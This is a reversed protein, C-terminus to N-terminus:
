TLEPSPIEIPNGARKAFRIQGLAAGARSLLEAMERLASELPQFQVASVAEGLFVAKRTTPRLCTEASDRHNFLWCLVTDGIAYVPISSKLPMDEPRAGLPKFSDGPRAARLEVVGDPLKEVDYAGLPALSGASIQCYATVVPIPTDVKGSKFFRRALAECSSRYTSSKVGCRNFADRWGRIEQSNALTELTVGREALAVSVRAWDSAFDSLVPSMPDLNDAVFGGVTVEPFVSTVTQEIKVRIAM